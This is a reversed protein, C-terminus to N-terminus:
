AAPLAAVRRVFIEGALEDDLALTTEGLAVVYAPRRQHLRLQSGPVVGLAALRDLRAHLKPAIFAIRGSEGLELDRLSALLPKM